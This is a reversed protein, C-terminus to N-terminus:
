THAANIMRRTAARWLSLFRTLSSFVDFVISSSRQNGVDANDTTRSTAQALYPIKWNNKEELLRKGTGYGCTNSHKTDEFPSNTLM